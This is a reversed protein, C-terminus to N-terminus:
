GGGGEHGTAEEGESIDDDNYDDVEERAGDDNVDGRKEGGCFRLTLV